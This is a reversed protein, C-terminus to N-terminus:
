CEDHIRRRNIRVLETVFTRTAQSLDPVAEVIATVTDDSLGIVRELWFDRVHPDVGRLATAAHTTLAPARSGPPHEFRTARGRRAWAEVADDRLRRERESDRLNFGLSSAHDYSGALADPESTPSQLVSWNQEHRDQNAILADLTMYGAFVDMATFWEPLTSDPPVACPELLIAINGLTHGARGRKKPQYGAVIGALLDSGSHMAWKSPRLNRSISGRRGERTALEVRACPVGLEIALESAIKEAWDEGQSWGEHVTVPKFLWKTKTAPDRLWDKEDLGAPEADDIPWASVDHVPFGAVFM